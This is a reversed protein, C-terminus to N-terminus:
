RHDVVCVCVCVGGEGVGGCERAFMSVNRGDVIQKQTHTHSTHGSACVHALTHSLALCIQLTHASALLFARLSHAKRQHTGIYRVFAHLVSFRM